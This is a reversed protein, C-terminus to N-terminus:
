ASVQHQQEIDACQRSIDQIDKLTLSSLRDVFIVYYSPPQADGKGVLPSSDDVFFCEHSFDTEDNFIAVIHRAVDLSLTHFAMQM